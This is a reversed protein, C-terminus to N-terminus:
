KKEQKFIFYMLFFFLKMLVAYVSLYSKWIKMVVDENISFFIYTNNFVKIYITIWISYVKNFLVIKTM